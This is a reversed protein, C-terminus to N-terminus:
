DDLVEGAREVFGADSFILPNFERARKRECKACVYTCFIGNADLLAYRTRGSGCTCLKNGYQDVM